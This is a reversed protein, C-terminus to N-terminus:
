PISHRVVFDADIWRYVAPVNPRPETIVLVRHAPQVHFSFFRHDDFEMPDNAQVRVEGQHLGVPLTQTQFAVEVEGNAPLEVTKEGGQGGQENTDLYLHVVVTKKEPGTSRLRAKM